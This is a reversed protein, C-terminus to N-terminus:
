RPVALSGAVPAGAPAPTTAAARTDLDAMARVAALTAPLDGYRVDDFSVAAASFDDALAPLRGAARRALEDATLGPSEAILARESLARAIARFWEVLATHLDGAAEAEEAARRHDTATRDVADFVGRSRLKAQRRFGGTRWVVFAVLALVLAIAVSVGVNGPVGPAQVRDLQAGIWALVMDIIGPRETQYERRSLEERAWARAQERDPRIPADFRAVRLTLTTLAHAPGTV